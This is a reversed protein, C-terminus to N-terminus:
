ELDPLAAAIPRAPDFGELRPLYPHQRGSTLEEVRPIVYDRLEVLSVQEDKPYTDAQGAFDELPAKTFAGHGCGEREIPAGDGSHFPDLTLFPGSQPPQAYGFARRLCVGAGELASEGECTTLMHGAVM